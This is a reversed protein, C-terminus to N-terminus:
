ELEGSNIELYRDITKVDCNFIRALESKNLLCQEERIYKKLKNHIDKSM